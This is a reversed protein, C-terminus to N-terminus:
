LEGAFLNVRMHFENTDSTCPQGGTSQAEAGAAPADNRAGGTLLLLCALVVPLSRPPLLMVTMTALKQKGQPKKQGPRMVTAFLLARAKVTFALEPSLRVSPPRFRSDLTL